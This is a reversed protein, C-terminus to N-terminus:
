ACSFKQMIANFAVYPHTYEFDKFCALTTDNKFRRIKPYTKTSATNFYKIEVDFHSAVIRAVNIFSLSVGSAAIISGASRYMLCNMALKAIDEVWVYDRLEKGDGLIQITKNQSAQRFFADFGYGAKDNNLGFLLTPIINTVNVSSPLDALMLERIYHSTGYITSPSRLFTEDINDHCDSFVSDSSINIVTQVPHIHLANCITQSIVNARNLSTADRIPAVGAAIIVADDANLLKAIQNSASKHELDIESRTIPVTPIDLASLYRQMTQGVFGNAGIVVVRPPKIPVQSSLTLTM